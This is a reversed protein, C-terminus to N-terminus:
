AVRSVRRARREWTGRRAHEACLQREGRETMVTTTAVPTAAIVNGTWDSEYACWACGVPRDAVSRGGRAGVGRATLRVSARMFARRDQPHM